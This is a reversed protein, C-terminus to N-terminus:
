YSITAGTCEGLSRKFTFRAPEWILNDVVQGTEGPVTMLAIPFLPVFLAAGLVTTGIGLPRMVLLDFTQPYACDDLSDEYGVARAAGALALCATLTLVAVLSRAIRRMSAEM